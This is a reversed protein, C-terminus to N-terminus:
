SQLGAYTRVTKNAVMDAIQGDFAKFHSSQLHADFGARDTYLEYLFVEDPRAPDTWVDFRHCAPEEALSTAANQTMLPMFAALHQPHIEFTVVVAYM